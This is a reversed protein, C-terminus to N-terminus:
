NGTLVRCERFTGPSGSSVSVWGLLVYKAGPSGLESPSSNPVFDGRKYDGVTPVSSRANYKASIRNEALNNLLTEIQRFLDTITHVNYESPVKPVLYLRSM